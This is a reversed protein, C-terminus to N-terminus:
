RLCAAQFGTHQLNVMQVPPKYCCCMYRVSTHLISAFYNWLMLRVTSADYFFFLPSNNQVTLAFGVCKKGESMPCSLACWWRSSARHWASSLSLNSVCVLGQELTQRQSPLPCWSQLVLVSARGAVVADGNSAVQLVFAWIREWGM